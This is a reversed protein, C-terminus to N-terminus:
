EDIGMKQRAKAYNEAAHRMWRNHQSLYGSFRTAQYQFLAAQAEKYWGAAIAQYVSAFATDPIVVPVTVYAM